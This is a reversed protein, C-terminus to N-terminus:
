RAALRRRGFLAIGGLALVAAGVAAVIGLDAGTQALTSSSTTDAPKPSATTRPRVPGTSRSPARLCSTTAPSPSCAPPPTSSYDPNEIAGAMPSAVVVVVFAATLFLLLRSAIRM